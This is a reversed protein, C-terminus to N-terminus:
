ARAPHRQLGNPQAGSRGNWTPSFETFICFARFSEPLRERAAEPLVDYNRRLHEARSIEMALYDAKMASRRAAPRLPRKFSPLMVM